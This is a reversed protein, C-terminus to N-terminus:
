KRFSGFGLGQVKFGSGWVRFGPCPAQPKVEQAAAHEPAAKTSAQKRTGKFYKSPELTGKSVPEKLPEM